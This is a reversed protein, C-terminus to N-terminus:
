FLKKLKNWFCEYFEKSLGDNGPEKNNGMPKLNKYVEDESINGILNIHKNTLKPLHM